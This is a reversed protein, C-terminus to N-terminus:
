IYVARGSFCENVALALDFCLIVLQPDSLSDLFLTRRSPGARPMFIVPVEQM